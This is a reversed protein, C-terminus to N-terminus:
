HDAPKNKDIFAQFEKTECIKKAFFDAALEHGKKGPHADANSYAFTELNGFNIFYPALDYIEIENARFENLVQKHVAGYQNTYDVATITFFMPFIFGIVKFNREGSLKRLRKLSDSVNQWGKGDKKHQQNIITDTAVGRFITFNCFGWYYAYSRMKYIFFNHINECWLPTTRSRPSTADHLEADNLVYGITILDPKYLASAKEIVELEQITNYGCHGMNYVEVKADLQMKALKSNLLNETIGPYSDKRSFGAGETFSDGIAFIRFVNGHKEKSFERDRHGASNLKLYVWDHWTFNIAPNMGLTNKVPFIRAFTELLIPGWLFSLVIIMLLNLIKVKPFLKGSIFVCFMYILLGLIFLATYAFKGLIGLPNIFNLNLLIYYISLPLLTIIVAHLFCKKFVLPIILKLFPNAALGILSVSVLLILILINPKVKIKYTYSRGNDLPSSNDSSSFYVAKGWHSYTGKGELRITDHFSHAPGLEKGNEYLLMNSQRSLSMTDGGLSFLIRLPLTIKTDAIFAKGIEQQAHSTHIIGTYSIEIFYLSFYILALILSILSVTKMVSSFLKSRNIAM